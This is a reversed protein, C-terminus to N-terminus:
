PLRPTIESSALRAWLNSKQRRQNGQSKVHNTRESRKPRQALESTDGEKRINGAGM